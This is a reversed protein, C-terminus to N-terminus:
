AAAIEFDTHTLTPDLSVEREFGYLDILVRVLTGTWRRGTPSRLQSRNLRAAITEASAGTGYDKSIRRAPEADFPAWELMSRLLAQLRHFDCDHRTCLVGHESPWCLAAVQRYNWRRGLWETWEPQNLVGAISASSLGEDRCRTVFSAFDHDAAVSLM